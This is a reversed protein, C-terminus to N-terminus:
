GVVCHVVEHGQADVAEPFVVEDAAYVGAAVGGACGLGAPFDKIDCASGAIDGEADEVVRCVYVVIWVCV